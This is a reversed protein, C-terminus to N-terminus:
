VCRIDPPLFAIVREDYSNFTYSEKKLGKCDLCIYRIGVMAYTFTSGVVRCPETHGNSVIRKHQYGFVPCPCKEFRLPFENVPMFLLVPVSFYKTPDRSQSENLKPGSTPHYWSSLFPWVGNSDQIAKWAYDADKLQQASLVSSKGGMVSVPVIIEDNPLRFQSAISSKSGECNTM